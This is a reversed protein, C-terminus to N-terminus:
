HAVQLPLSKLSRLGFREHWTIESAPVALSLGPHISFLARLAAKMELRALQHGLCFHVGAGFEIHRNPRRTIDFREPHDFVEPDYNAAVLMPM